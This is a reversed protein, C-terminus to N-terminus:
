FFLVFFGWWVNAFTYLVHAHTPTYIIMQIDQIRCFGKQRQDKKKKRKLLLLVSSLWLEKHTYMYMIKKKTQESYHLKAVYSVVVMEYQISIM